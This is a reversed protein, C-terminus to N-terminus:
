APLFKANWRKVLRYFASGVNTFPTRMTANCNIQQASGGNMIEFRVTESQGNQPTLFLHTALNNWFDFVRCWDAVSNRNVWV